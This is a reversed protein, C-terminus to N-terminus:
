QGAGLTIEPKDWQNEAKGPDPPDFSLESDFTTISAGTTTVKIPYTGEPLYNSDFNCCSQTSPIRAMDFGNAPDDIGAFTVSELTDPALDTITVHNARTWDLTLLGTDVSDSLEIEKRVGAVEHFSKAVWWAILSVTDGNKLGAGSVQKSTLALCFTGDDPDIKAQKSPVGVLFVTGDRPYEGPSITDGAAMEASMITDGSIAFDGTCDSSASKKKSSGGGSSPSCGMAVLAAFAIWLTAPIIRSKMANERECM